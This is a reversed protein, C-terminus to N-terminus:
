KEAKKTELRKKLASVEPSDKPAFKLMADFTSQAEDLKGGALLAETLALHGLFSRKYKEIAARADAEAATVDELLLHARSRSALAGEKEISEEVFQEAVKLQERYNTKRELIRLLLFYAQASGGKTEGISETVDPGWIWFAIKTVIGAETSFNRCINEAQDLDGNEFLRQAKNFRSANMVVIILSIILFAFFMTGLFSALESSSKLKNSASNM